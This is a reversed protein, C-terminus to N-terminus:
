NALVNGQLPLLTKKTSFYGGLVFYCCLNSYIIFREMSGKMFGFFKESSEVDLGLYPLFIFSAILIAIGFLSLMILIPSREIQVLSILFIASFTFVFGTFIGHFPRAGEPFLGVGIACIGTLILLITSIKKHYEKQFLYASTIVFIGLIFVASNFILSTSGTGLSSVYYLASDYNVAIGQAVLILLIFQLPGLILLFGLLDKNEFHLQIM